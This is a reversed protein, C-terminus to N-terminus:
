RGEHGKLIKIKAMVKGDKSAVKLKTKKCNEDLLPIERVILTTAPDVVDVDLVECVWWSKKDDLWIKIYKGIYKELNM